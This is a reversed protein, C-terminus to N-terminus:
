GSIEESPDGKQLRGNRGTVDGDGFAILLKPSLAGLGCKADLAQLQLAKPREDSFSPWIRISSSSRSVSKAALTGSISGGMTASVSLTRTNGTRM